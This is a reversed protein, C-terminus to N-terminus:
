DIDTDGHYLCRRVVYPDGWASSAINVYIYRQLSLHCSLYFMHLIINTILGNNLCKLMKVPYVTNKVGCIFMKFIIQWYRIGKNLVDRFIAM